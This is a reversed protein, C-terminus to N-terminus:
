KEPRAFRFTPIPREENGDPLQRWGDQQGSIIKKGYIDAFFTLLSAGPTVPTAAELGFAPPALFLLPAAIFCKLARATESVMKLYPCNMPDNPKTLFNDAM